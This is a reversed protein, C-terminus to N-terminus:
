RSSHRSATGCFECVVSLRYLFNGTGQAAPKRDFASFWSQVKRGKFCGSLNISLIYTYIISLSFLLSICCAVVWSTYHVTSPSLLVGTPSPLSLQIVCYCLDDKSFISVKWICDSSAFHLLHCPPLMPPPFKCQRDLRPSKLDLDRHLYQHYAGSTVGM